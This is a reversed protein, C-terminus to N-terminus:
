HQMGPRAPHGTSTGDGGVGSNCDWRGAPNGTTEMACVQTIIGQAWAAASCHGSLEHSSHQLARLLAWLSVAMHIPMHFM